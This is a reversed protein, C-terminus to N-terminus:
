PKLSQIRKNYWIEKDKMLRIDEEYKELKETLNKIELAKGGGDQDGGGGTLSNGIEATKRLKKESFTGFDESKQRRKIRSSSTSSSSSPIKPSLYSSTKLKQKLEETELASDALALKVKQLNQHLKAIEADKQAIIQHNDNTITSSDDISSTTSKNNVSAELDRIKDQLSSIINDKAKILSSHNTPSPTKAM